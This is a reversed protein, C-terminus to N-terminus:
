LGRVESRLQQYHQELEQALRRGVALASGQLSQRLALRQGRDRPGCHALASAIEVYQEATSALWQQQGGHVLLSAALRGVMGPGALAVVPVGMWLAEATTTAGGYPIPDLAVDLESYRMLHNLGGEVWPLLVLRQPDIGATEFRRRIRQREADEHFSISKLVLEAEPVAELVCAFLAVCAATLKRAHNFSGFRFRPAECREPIALEGGADFVMYGGKVELLRHAQRDTANLGDFLVRDGIWGDVNRLYTPAPYGLYSLQVPAPRHALLAVRSLGTFGGLEVLVDLRQDAVVRAAQRDNLFRLDIWHDVRERLHNSIWDDYPGCSLAWVEVKHRDHHQLLPLLFRGVPHNCFDASLYGVRLRRGALPELMLDPWLRGIGAQQQREEWQRAQMCRQQSSLLGYSAGLFQQSFLHVDKLSSEDRPWLTWLRQCAQLQGMEALSQSLAQQLELHQPHRQLARLLLRHPAVTFKLGRLCAAWNLWHLPNQPEEIALVSLVQSAQELQNRAMQLGALAGRVDGQRQQDEPLQEWLQQAQELQGLDKLITIRNAAMRADAPDLEQAREFAALAEHLLGLRGNCVGLNIWADRRDPDEQVLAALLARSRGPQGAALWCSALAHRLAPDGPSHQLLRELLERAQEHQNLDLWCNVANLALGLHESFVALWRHYHADAENIRGASRLLAGLNVADDVTEETGLLQRYLTEAEKLDGRAHAKWAMERM